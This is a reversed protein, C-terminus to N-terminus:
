AVSSVKEREKYFQRIKTPTTKHDFHLVSAEKCPLITIPGYLRSSVPKAASLLRPLPPSNISEQEFDVLRKKQVSKRNNPPLVNVIMVRTGGSRIGILAGLLGASLFGLLVFVYTM